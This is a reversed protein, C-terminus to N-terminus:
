TTPSFLFATEVTTTAFHRVHPSGVVSHAPAHQPIQFSHPSSAPTSINHLLLSSLQPSSPFLLPRQEQTSNTTSASMFPPRTQHHRWAEWKGVDLGFSSVWIFIITFTFSPTFFPPPSVFLARKKIWFIVLAVSKLDISFSNIKIIIVCIPDSACRM